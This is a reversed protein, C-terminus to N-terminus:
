KTFKTQWAYVASIDGRNFNGSPLVFLWLTYTGSPLAATSLNGGNVGLNETISENTKAGASVSKWIAASKSLQNNSNLFQRAGSDIQYAVAIDVSGSFAPLGIQWNLVNSNLNGAAIPLVQASDASIVPTEIYGYVPFSAFSSPAAMTRSSPYTYNIIAQLQTDTLSSLTTMNTTAGARSKNTTIANKTISVDDGRGVVEVIPQAIAAIEHCAKCKSV